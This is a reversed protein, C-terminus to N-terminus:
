CHSRLKYLNHIDSRITSFIIKKRVYFYSVVKFLMPTSSLPKEISKCACLKTCAFVDRRACEDGQACNISGQNKNLTVYIYLKGCKTLDQPKAWFKKTKLATKEYSIRQFHQSFSADFTCSM